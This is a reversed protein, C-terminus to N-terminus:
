KKVVFVSQTGSVSVTFPVVDPSGVLLQVSYTGPTMPATQVATFPVYDVDTLARVTAQLPVFVRNLLSPAAVNYYQLTLTVVHDPDGEGTGDYALTGAFTINVNSECNVTFTQPTLGVTSENLDIDVAPTFSLVYSASIGTSRCASRCSSRCSTAKGCGCM